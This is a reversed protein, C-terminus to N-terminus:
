RKRLETYTFAAIAGAVLGAGLLLLSLVDFGLAFGRVLGAGTFMVIAFLQLFLSFRLRSYDGM